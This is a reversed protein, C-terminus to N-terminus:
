VRRQWIKPDRKAHFVSTVIIADDTVFYLVSYPFRRVVGRRVRKHVEPYLEPHSRILQVCSDVCRVFEAGLGAQRQEYWDYAEHLDAEAAPRFIVRIIM